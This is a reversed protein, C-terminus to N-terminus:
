EENIPQPGPVIGELDPDIGESILREREKKSDGRQAKKEIKEQKRDARQLERNRKTRAAQNPRGM